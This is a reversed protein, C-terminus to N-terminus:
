ENWNKWGDWNKFKTQWVGTNNYDGGNSIFELSYRFAHCTTQSILLVGTIGAQHQWPPPRKM